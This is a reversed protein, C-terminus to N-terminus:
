KKDGGVKLGHELLYMAIYEAKSMGLAKHKILTKYDEEATLILSSIISVSVARERKKFIEYVLRKDELFFHYEGNILASPALGLSSSM